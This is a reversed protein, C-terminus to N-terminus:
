SEHLASQSRRTGALIRHVVLGAVLFVFYAAWFAVARGHGIVIVLAFASLIGIFALVALGGAAWASRRRLRREVLDAANLVCYVTYRRRLMLMQVGVVECGGYGAVAEVLLSVGIYLLAGEAIAPPVAPLSSLVAVPAVLLIAALWPDVRALLREGLLGVLVTYGAAVVILALALERALTWSLTGLEGSIVSGAVGAIFLFGALGRVIRGAPLVDRGIRTDTM